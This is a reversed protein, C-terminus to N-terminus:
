SGLAMHSGGPLPWSTGDPFAVLTKEGAGKHLRARKDKVLEKIFEDLADRKANFEDQPAHAARALELRLYLALFRSADEAKALAQERDRATAEAAEVKAEAQAAKLDKASLEAQRLHDALSYGIGFSGGVLTILVGLAAWAQGPKLATILEKLTLNEVKGSM